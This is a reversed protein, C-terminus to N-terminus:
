HWTRQFTYLISSIFISISGWECLEHLREEGRVVEQEATRESELTQNYRLYAANSQSRANRLRARSARLSQEALRVVFSM